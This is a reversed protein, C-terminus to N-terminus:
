GLDFEEGAVTYHTRLFKYKCIEHIEDPSYGTHDSLLKYPIGWLYSNQSNSRRKSYREVVVDVVCDRDFEIAINQRFKDKDVLEFKGQKINGVAVVRKMERRLNLITATAGKSWHLAGYLAKPFVL